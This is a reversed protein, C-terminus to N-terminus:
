RGVITQSSAGSYYEHDPAMTIPLEFIISSPSAYLSSANKADHSVYLRYGLAVSCSITYADLSVTRNYQARLHLICVLALCLTM